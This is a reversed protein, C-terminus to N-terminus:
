VHSSSRPRKAVPLAVTEMWSPRNFTVTVYCQRRNTLGAKGSGAQYFDCTIITDKVLVSPRQPLSNMTRDRLDGTLINIDVWQHILEIDKPVRQFLIPGQLQFGRSALDLGLLSM